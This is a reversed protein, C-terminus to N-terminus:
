IMSFLILYGRKPGSKFYPLRVTDSIIGYFVKFDWPSIIFTEAVQLQNPSLMYTTKFMEKLAVSYLIKFGGNIYLFM